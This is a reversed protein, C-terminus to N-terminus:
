GRVLALKGGAGQQPRRFAGSQSRSRRRRRRRSPPPRTLLVEADLVGHPREWHRGRQFLSAQKHSRCHLAAEPLNDQQVSPLVTPVGATGCQWRSTSASCGCVEQGGAQGGGDQLVLCNRPQYLAVISSTPASGAPCPM